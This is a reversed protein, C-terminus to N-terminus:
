KREDADMLPEFKERPTKSRQHYARPSSKRKGRKQHSAAEDRRDRHGGHKLDESNSLSPACRIPHEFGANRTAEALSSASSSARDSKARSSLVSLSQRVTLPLPQENLAVLVGVFWANSVSRRM